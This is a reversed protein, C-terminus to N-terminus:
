NIRHRRKVQVFFFFDPAPLNVFLVMFFEAGTLQEPPQLDARIGVIVVPFVPLRIIIGMFCFHLRLYLLNIMGVISNISVSTHFDVQFSLAIKVTGSSNMFIHICTDM